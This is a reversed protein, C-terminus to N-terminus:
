ASPPSQSSIIAVNTLLSIHILSIYKSRPQILFRSTMQVALSAKPLTTESGFSSNRSAHTLSLLLRLIYASVLPGPQTPTVNILYTNWDSLLVHIDLISTNDITTTKVPTTTEAPNISSMTITHNLHTYCWVSLWKQSARGEGEAMVRVMDNGERSPCPEEEERENSSWIIWEFVERLLEKLSEKLLVLLM